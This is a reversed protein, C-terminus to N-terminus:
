RNNTDTSQKEEKGHNEGELSELEKIMNELKGKSKEKMPGDTMKEIKKEQIEIRHKLSEIRQKRQRKRYLIQEATLGKKEPPKEVEPSVGPINIRKYIMSEPKKDMSDQSHTKGMDFIKKTEM